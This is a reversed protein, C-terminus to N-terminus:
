KYLEYQTKDAMWVARSKGSAWWNVVDEASEFESYKGKERILKKVTNIYALKFNPYDRFDRRMTRPSMPCGICGIRNQREYLPSIEVNRDSLFQFVDRKTWELIPNLLNKDQGIKCSSEFSKRKKRKASEAKTIGTIVVANLGNREKIVECCFRCRRLPLMGKKVILKYMSMEPKIWEVEPYNKRIFALHEVPDVSTKYFFPKFKVEAMKCLELIVQSDKGGSFALHFGFDQYKLALPEAEKIIKISEKIKQALIM